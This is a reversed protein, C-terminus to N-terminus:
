WSPPHNVWLIRCDKEGTNTFRHNQTSHFYFSDGPGLNYSSGNISLEVTGELVLGFEEGEHKYDGVSGGGPGV